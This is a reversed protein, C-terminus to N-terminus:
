EKPSVHIWTIQKRSLQSAPISYCQHSITPVRNSENAIFTPNKLMSEIPEFEFFILDIDIWCVVDVRLLWTDSVEFSLCVSSHILKIWSKRKYEGM